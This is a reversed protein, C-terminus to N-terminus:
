MSVRQGVSRNWGKPLINFRTGYLKDDISVSYRKKPITIM